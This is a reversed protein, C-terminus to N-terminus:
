KVFVSNQHPYITPLGSTSLEQKVGNKWLGRENIGGCSYVDGDYVFVSFTGCPQEQKIGNIWMTNSMGVMYVDQGYVFVSRASTTENLIQLKGNIWLAAATSNGWSHWEVDVTGAVYVKDGSAAISFVEGGGHIPTGGSVGINMVRELRHLEGNKWFVPLSSAWGAFYVDAGQVFVSNARPEGTLGGPNLRHKKGNKWMVADYDLSGAWGPRPRSENGAVYVDGNSVFVDYAIGGRHQTDLELDQRVGNKWLTPLQYYNSGTGLRRWGAVYVDGEYVFVSQYSDYSFKDQMEYIEGNKWLVGYDTSRGAVFVSETVTVTCSAQKDGAKATIVATGAGTAKIEGTNSVIAVKTDSSTWQISASVPTVTANLTKVDTTHATLINKDLTLSTVQADGGTEETSCSVLGLSVSILLASFYLLTKKMNKKTKHGM